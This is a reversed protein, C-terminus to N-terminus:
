SVEGATTEHRTSSFLAHLWYFLPFMLITALASVFLSAINPWRGMAFLGFVFSMFFVLGLALTFFGLATSFKQKTRVGGGMIMFLFMYSMTWIGIPGDSAVDHLLGLLFVCILSLSYSALPPWFYIAIVPLFVFGVHLGGLNIDALSAFVLLIGILLGQLGGSFSNLRYATEKDSM